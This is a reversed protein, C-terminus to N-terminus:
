ICRINTSASIDLDAPPEDFLRQVRPPPPTTQWAPRWRRRRGRGSHFSSVGSSTSETDSLDQLVSTYNSPLCSPPPDFPKLTYSYFFFLLFFSLVLLPLFLLFIFVFVFIFFFTLFYSFFFINNPFLNTFLFCM